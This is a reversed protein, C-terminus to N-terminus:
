QAMQQIIEDTAKNILNVPTETWSDLTGPGFYQADDQAAKTLIADDVALEHHFEMSNGAGAGFGPGPSFAGRSSIGNSGSASPSDPTLFQGISGGLGASNFLDQGVMYGAGANIGSGEASFNQGGEWQASINQCTWADPVLDLCFGDFDFGISASLGLNGGLDIPCTVGFFSIDFALSFGIDKFLDASINVGSACLSIQQLGIPVGLVSGLQADLTPGYLNVGGSLLDCFLSSDFALSGLDFSVDSFIQGLKSSAMVDDGFCTLDLISEPRRVIERTYARDRVRLAKSYNSQMNVIQPNAGIPTTTAYSSPIFIFCFAVILLSISFIIRKFGIM